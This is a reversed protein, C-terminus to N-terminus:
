RYLQKSTIPKASVAGSDYSVNIAAVDLPFLRRYRRKRRGYKILPVRFNLMHYFVDGAMRNILDRAPDLRLDAERIRAAVEAGSGAQQDIWMVTKDSGPRAPDIGIIHM